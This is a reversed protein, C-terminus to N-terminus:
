IQSDEVRIISAYKPIWFRERIAQRLEEDTLVDSLKSVKDAFAQKAVAFAVKKSVQPIEKVRPFIRGNLLEEESLSDALAIAAANLMRDNIVKAKSVLAGLGIGPYSYMNNPQAPILLKGKYNVPAFPSGSGFICKGDTWKYADEAKCEANKTPNSLPFIIPRDCHKAMEQIANQSFIGGVGTLGLLITPKVSKILEELPMKDLIDNRVWDEQNKYQVNRGHGLSGYNDVIWFRKRAEAETLGSQIMNFLIGKSVGLGATGAGVVVIRQDCLAAQANPNGLARLASLVGALAVTATGQMDDNFCLIKERYKELIRSANEISFDEFQVLVNPFRQRIAKIFEDVIEDYVKGSLRKQQLGLYMPDELLYNNNTGVDIVVPLCKSPHIGGCAAYLSLKGIPIGMGNTGLDGLGLIRSGDTVVILEVDDTPWNYVMSRMMGIDKASFYMGRPRRFLTGFNICAEGVIPTYIIPALEELHETLCKYFLVSNRDQLSILYSYKHLPSELEYYRNMIRKVQWDLCNESPLRPPVLGRIGLREREEKPFGTGKNLLPDLLVEVGYKTTLVFEGIAEGTCPNPEFKNKSHVKIKHFNYFSLNRLPLIQTKLFINHKLCQLRYSKM